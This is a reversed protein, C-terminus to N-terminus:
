GCRSCAARGEVCSLKVMRVTRKLGSCSELNHYRNGSGTVYVVGAPAAHASCTECASYREGHDNRLSSVASGPVSNVSLNLYSCGPSRHFVSGSDTVYVMEELPQAEGASAEYLRGTWAHVKVSNHCWVAPLPVLGGVPKYTYVDPLTIEEPGDEGTGYAYMGAQKVRSCLDALHETQLRYIDMFSIMTVMGLFFLPLVLATELTLSGKKWRGFSTCPSVKGSLRKKGGNTPASGSVMSGPSCIREIKWNENRQDYRYVFASRIWKWSCMRIKMFFRQERQFLM